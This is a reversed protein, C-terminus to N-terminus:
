SILMRWPTQLTKFLIIHFIIFLSITICTYIIRQRRTKLSPYFFQMVSYSLFFTTSFFGENNLGFPFQKDRVEGYYFTSGYYMEYLVLAFASISLMVIIIKLVSHLRKSIKFFIPAISSILLIDIVIAAYHINRIMENEMYMRFMATAGGSGVLDNINLGLLLVLMYLVFGAFIKQM